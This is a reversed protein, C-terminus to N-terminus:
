REAASVEVQNLLWAYEFAIEDLQDYRGSAGGHGAGMNIKLLLPNTDTKMHRLKAVYKAAEWYMVQSDNLGTTVLIAPYAKREVNDYPSYSKMYEYATKDRPDGWELYEGVTLPLSEDWMTNMIDVFPVELHAARFLDPRMNVVAGVLLGGASGGTIILRDASTWGNAILYEASDIFDNFTNKKRMLMGDDHWAEGLEDGGRIHAVVYVCGRDLLSLRSYSFHADEGLGYAGYGYLFLPASGNLQIGQKYVVSLPVRIGDRATVWLRETRYQLPDYGGLVEDQKLQTRERTRMDYDYITSPTVMSEYCLRFQTSTFEPTGEGAALYVAEPFDIAHWEKQTFSYIRFRNLAESREHLVAYDQFVEIADILAAPQHAAFESWNERTPANAPVTVIRFNKADLNTRLYFLGDRHEVDYKHGKQRTHLVRFEGEPDDARLLRSEWTDTSRIDLIVYTRDKTDSLSISYLEDSEVYLQTPQSGLTLRWLSDSRKTAEDETTFFLTKNDAAWVASTVRQSTDGTLKGTRLDKIHLTYQRYGTTDTTYALLYDDDTIVSDCIEFYKHGKALENLNLLVEEPAELNHKKRAYIPYQDGEVTREYYFYAGDRTPVSLDTQKIRALIENYLTKAFLKIPKTMAKTYANEAKLYRIVEPNKKERLWYYQDVVTEDHRVDRHPQQDALPPITQAANKNAAPLSIDNLM